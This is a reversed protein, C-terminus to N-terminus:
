GVAEDVPYRDDNAAIALTIHFANNDTRPNAAIPVGEAMVADEIKQRLNHLEIQNSPKAHIYANKERRDLSCGFSDINVSFSTWEMKKVAAEILETEEDTHCCFTMLGM